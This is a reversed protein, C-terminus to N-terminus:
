NKQLVYVTAEIDQGPLHAGHERFLCRAAGVDTWAMIRGEYTREALAHDNLSFVFRGGQPLARMVDDILAAPAHSPSFIGVASVAAYDGAALAEAADGVMLDRYIGRARAQEVMADTIDIGDIVEFGAMRLALGSLGTSILAM